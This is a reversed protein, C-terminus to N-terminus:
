ESVYLKFFEWIAKSADIDMNGSAGPWDHGGNVVTYLWVQNNGVCSIHKEAIVFSGDSSNLDPLTDLKSQSCMNNEVFFDLTSRVPLYAGWGQKNEMDGDWTTIQDASSNIMFVPIQAIQIISDYTSKMMCGCVPAVAQFIGSTKCSLYICMDGGNSMGTAFTNTQSLNYKEQLHGALSTLFYVDDQKQAKTFDYGVEWFTRGEKERLGQPYCVAFKNKDAIANMRTTHMMNEANDTFGHIVFVLPADDPLSDPLYLIFERNNGDVVINDSILGNFASNQCASLLISQVFLLFKWNM